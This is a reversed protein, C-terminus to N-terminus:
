GKTPTLLFRRVGDKTNTFKEVYENAISPVLIGDLLLAEFIKQYDTVRSDKTRKWTIRGFDGRIGEREGIADKLLNVLTSETDELDAIEKRVRVLERANESELSGADALPLVNREYQKALYRACDDSGDIPPPVDAVVHRNWWDVLFDIMTRETEPDRELPYIGKWAGGHMLAVDWVDVDSIAMYLACQSAYFEPVENTGPDGFKDVFLVESKIEVGRREGVVLRDFSGLLMPYQPHRSIGELKRLSRGTVRSYINAIVDEIQSGFQLRLEHALDRPKEDLPVRGTKEEWVKYPSTWPSIGLIGAVDSGGIGTRRDKLWQERNM